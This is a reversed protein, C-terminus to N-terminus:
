CYIVTKDCINMMTWDFVNALANSHLIFVRNVICFEPWPRTNWDFVFNVLADSISSRVYSSM